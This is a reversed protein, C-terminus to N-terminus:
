LGAPAQDLLGLLEPDLHTPHEPMLALRVGAALRQGDVVALGEARQDLVHALHHTRRDREHRALQAAEEVALLEGAVARDHALRPRRRDAAAPVAERDAGAQLADPVVNVEVM